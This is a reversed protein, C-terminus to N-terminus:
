VSEGEETVTEAIVEEARGSQGSRRIGAPSNAGATIRGTCDTNAPSSSAASSGPRRRSISLCTNWASANAPPPGSGPKKAIEASKELRQNFCVACRAGGEPEGELGQVRAFYEEPEYDGEIFDLGPLRNDRKYDIIFRIQEEKRKEYEARDTICPNYYFVTIEYLPALREICATSCPGCCSHLLLRKREAQGLVLNIEEFGRGADPCRCGAVATEIKEKVHRGRKRPLNDSEM